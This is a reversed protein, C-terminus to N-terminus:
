DRCYRAFAVDEIAYNLDQMHGLVDFFIAEEEHDSYTNLQKILNKQEDNKLDFHFGILLLIELHEKSPGLDNNSLIGQVYQYVTANPCLFALALTLGMFANLLNQIGWYM